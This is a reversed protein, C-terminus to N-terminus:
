QGRSCEVTEFRPSGIQLFPSIGSGEGNCRYGDGERHRGNAERMDGPKGQSVCELGNAALNRPEQPLAIGLARFINPDDLGFATTVEMLFREHWEVLQYGAPKWKKCAFQGLRPHQVLHGVGRGGLGLKRIVVCDGLRFVRDAIM